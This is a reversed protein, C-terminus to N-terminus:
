ESKDNTLAKELIHQKIEDETVIKLSIDKDRDNITQITGAYDTKTRRAVSLARFVTIADELPLIYSTDYNIRISGFLPSTELIKSSM